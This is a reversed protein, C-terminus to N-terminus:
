NFTYICKCHLQLNFMIVIMELCIKAFIIGLDYITIFLYKDVFAILDFSIKLM